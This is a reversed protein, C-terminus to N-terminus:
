AAEVDAAGSHDPEKAARLWGARRYWAITSAFGRQLDLEPRFVADPLLESGAVSWQGYVIERAKGADLIAPRGRARALLGSVLGAAHVAAAPLQVFRPANGLMAAATEFIFRPSYGSPNQDALAHVTGRFADPRSAVAAIAAAADAVHIMAIRTGPGGPIPVLQRGAVRFIALTERDSPGYIVPPRVISLRGAFADALAAEGARKSEAYASLTPTRAALSSVGVLHAAPAQRRVAQALHAAGDRNTLFFERRSRAKILGAAHIVVDADRVLRDLVNPEDLGGQVLEPSSGAPFPEQPPRRVLLRLSFGDAALSSLLHRGLFGTGGTM